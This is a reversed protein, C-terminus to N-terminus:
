MVEPQTTQQLTSYGMLDLVVLLLVPLKTAVELKATVLLKFAICPVMVLWLKKDQEMRLIMVM